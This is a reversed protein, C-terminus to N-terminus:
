AEEELVKIADKLSKEEESRLKKREEYNDLLPRCARELNALYSEATTKEGENDAKDTTAQDIADETTQIEVTITNHQDNLDNMDKNHLAKDEGYQKVADAELKELNDRSTTFEARTDAILKVAASGSEPGGKRHLNGFQVFSAGKRSAYFKALIDMAENLANIAEVHEAHDKEYEEKETERIATLGEWQKEEAATAAENQVLEDKKEVLVEALNALDGKLEEITAALDDRKTTTESIEKECWEKHEKEAKQEEKLRDVLGEISSIIEDLAENGEAAAAAAQLLTSHYTTARQRLLSAARNCGTCARPRVNKHDASARSIRRLVASRQVFAARYEELTGVAQKCAEIEHERDKKRIAYAEEADKKQTKVQSLYTQADLKQKETRALEGENEAISQNTEDLRKQQSDREAILSNLLETKEKMLADFQKQLRAEDEVASQKDMVFSDKLLGLQDVINLGEGTSAQYREFTQPQRLHGKTGTAAQLLQIGKYLRRGKQLKKGAKNVTEVLSIFDPKVVEQEEGDGYHAGLVGIAKGCAAIASVFEQQEAAFAQQETSRKDKAFNIQTNTEAIEGKLKKVAADLEMKQTRLGSLTAELDEIKTTLTGITETTSTITDAAWAVFKTHTDEDLRGEEELEAVLNDLMTIVRKMAPAVQADVPALCLVLLLCVPARMM